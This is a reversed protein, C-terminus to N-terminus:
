GLPKGDNILPSLDTSTLESSPPTLYRTVAAAIALVVSMAFLGAGVMGLTMVGAILCGIASLACGTALAIRFNRNNPQKTPESNENEQKKPKEEPNQKPPQPQDENRKQPNGNGIPNAQSGLNKNEQTNQEKKAPQEPQPQDENRKQLDDDGGVSSSVSSVSSRRSSVPSSPSKESPVPSSARSNSSSGNSLEPTETSKELEKKGNIKLNEPGQNRITNNSHNEGVIKSLDDSIKLEMIMKKRETKEESSLKTSETIKAELNSLLSKCEEESSRKVIGSTIRLVQEIKEPELEKSQTIEQLLASLFTKIYYEYDEKKTKLPGKLEDPTKPGNKQKSPDIHKALTQEDQRARLVKELGILVNPDAPNDKQKFLQKCKKASEQVAERNKTVTEFIIDYVSEPKKLPSRM